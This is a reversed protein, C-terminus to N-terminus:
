SVVCSKTINKIEELLLERGYKKPHLYFEGTCILWFIKDLKYPTEGIEEAMRAMSKIVEEAKNDTPADPIKKGFIENYIKIIHIDPKVLCVCGCEKLFDCALAIGIGYVENKLKKLFQFIKDDYKGKQCISRLDDEYTELFCAMEYVGRSYKRWNGGNEKKTNDDIGKDLFEKYIDQWKEYTASIKGVNYDCLVEKITARNEKFKISNRMHGSNQLSEAAREMFSMNNQPQFYKQLNPEDIGQARAYNVLMNYAKNYINQAVNVEM